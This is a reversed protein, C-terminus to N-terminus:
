NIKSRVVRSSQLIADTGGIQSPHNGRLMGFLEVAHTVNQRGRAVDGAVIAIDVGITVAQM